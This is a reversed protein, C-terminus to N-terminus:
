FTTYGYRWEESISAYDSELIIPEECCRGESALLQEASDRMAASEQMMAQAEQLAPLRQEVAPLEAALLEAREAQHRLYEAKRLCNQVELFKEVDMIPRTEPTTTQHSAASSGNRKPSRPPKLFEEAKQLLKQAEALIPGREHLPLREAEFQMTEANRRLVESESIRQRTVKMTSLGDALGDAKHQRPLRWQRQEADRTSIVVPSPPLCHHPPSIGHNRAQEISQTAEDSMSVAEALKAEAEEYLPFPDEVDCKRASRCLEDASHRLSEATILQDRAAKQYPEQGHVAAVAEQYRQSGNTTKLGSTQLRTQRSDITSAAAQREWLRQQQLQGPLSRRKPKSPSSGAMSDVRIRENHPVINTRSLKVPSISERTEQLEKTVGAMEAEAERLEVTAEEFMRRTENDSSGQEARTQLAEALRRLVEANQIRQGLEGLVPSPVHAEGSLDQGSSYSRNRWAM